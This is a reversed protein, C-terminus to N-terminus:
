APATVSVPANVRSLDVTIRAGQSGGNGPVQFQARVPLHRGATAVWVTATVDKGIGPVLASVVDKSVTGTIRYCDTGAVSETAQTQAGRVSTLVKAVGRDPDLIATPDFLGGVLAAPLRQYGGTPGKIFFDNNVLVFDVQVVQCLETITASGKAQGQRNLDGDAKQVPVDPLTGDVTLSFHVSSVSRMATGAADLLGSAAPLTPSNSSCGAAVLTAAVLLLGLVSRRLPSM